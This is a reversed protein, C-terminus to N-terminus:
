DATQDRHSVNCSNPTKTGISGSPSIFNFAHERAEAGISYEGTKSVQSAILRKLEIISM